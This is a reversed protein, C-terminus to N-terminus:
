TKYKHTYIINLQNKHITYLRIDNKENTYGTESGISYFSIDLHLFYHSFFVRPCAFCKYVNMNSLRYGLYRQKEKLSM